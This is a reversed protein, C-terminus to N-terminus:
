GGTVEERKPRSVRRLVWNEDVKLRREERRTRSSTECAYAWKKITPNKENDTSM